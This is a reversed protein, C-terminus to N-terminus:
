ERYSDYIEIYNEDIVVPGWKKIFCMLEEMTSMERTPMVWEKYWPRDNFHKELTFHFGLKQLEEKDENSYFRGSTRLKFTM